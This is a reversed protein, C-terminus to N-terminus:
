EMHCDNLIAFVIMLRVTSWSVFPSYTALYGISKNYWHVGACLRSKWKVIDGMSWVMPVAHKGVPISKLPVVKWHKRDIHDCLEKKTAKIFEHCDPHQLAESLKMMDPGSSVAM